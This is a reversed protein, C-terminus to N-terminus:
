VLAKPKEAGHQGSMGNQASSKCKLVTDSKTIAIAVLVENIQLQNMGLKEWHLPSSFDPSANPELSDKTTEEHADAAMATAVSHVTRGFFSGNLEQELTNKQHQIQDLMPTGSGEEENTSISYRKDGHKQHLAELLTVQSQMLLQMSGAMEDLREEIKLAERISTVASIDEQITKVVTERHVSTVAECVVAIVLNLFFFSSVVVFAVVPAWAWSNVAILEKCINSWNDLTMIQFLTFFATDLSSFYDASTLGEEYSYKFLDVFLIAFVFFLIMLLFFIAFMKPIALLLARVLEKLDKIWSAL